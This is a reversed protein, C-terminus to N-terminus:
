GGQGLLLASHGWVQEENVPHSGVFYAPELCLVHM